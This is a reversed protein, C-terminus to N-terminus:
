YKPMVLDVLDSVFLNQIKEGTIFQYDRQILNLISGQLSTVKAEIMPPVKMQEM